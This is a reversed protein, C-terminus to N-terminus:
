QPETKERILKIIRTLRVEAPVSSDMAELRIAEFTFLQDRIISALEEHTDIMIM